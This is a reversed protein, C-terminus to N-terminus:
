MLLGRQSRIVQSRDLISYQSSPSMVHDGGGDGSTTGGGGGGVSQHHNDAEKATTITEDMYLYSVADFM